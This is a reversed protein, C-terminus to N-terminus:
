KLAWVKRAKIKRKLVSFTGVWQMHSNNYEHKNLVTCELNTKVHKRNEINRNLM